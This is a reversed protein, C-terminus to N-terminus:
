LLSMGRRAMSVTDPTHYVNVRDAPTTFKLYNCPKPYNPYNINKDLEANYFQPSKAEGIVIFVLGSQAARNVSGRIKNVAFHCCYTSADVLVASRSDDHSGMTSM